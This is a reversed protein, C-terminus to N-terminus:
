DPKPPSCPDAHRRGSALVLGVAAWCLMGVSVDLPLPLWFGDLHEVAFMVVGQAVLAAPVAILARWGILLLLPVLCAVLIGLALGFDSGLAKGLCDESVNCSVPTGEALSRGFHVALVVGAGLAAAIM